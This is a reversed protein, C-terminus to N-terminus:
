GHTEGSPATVPVTTTPPPLPRVPRGFFRQRTEEWIAKCHLDEGDKPGLARCRSLEASLDDSRLPTTPPTETVLKAPQRHFAILATIVVAILVAIATIRFLDSRGM